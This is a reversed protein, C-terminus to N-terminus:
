ENCGEVSMRISYIRWVGHGGGSRSLSKCAEMRWVGHESGSRPLSKYAKMRTREKSKGGKLVGVKMQRGVAFPVVSLHFLGIKGGVYEYELIWCFIIL